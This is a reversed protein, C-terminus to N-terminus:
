NKNKKKLIPKFIKKLKLRELEKDSNSGEEGECAAIKAKTEEIKNSLNKM